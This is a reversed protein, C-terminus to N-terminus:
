CNRLILFGYKQDMKELSIKKGKIAHCNTHKKRQYQVFAKLYGTGFDRTKKELMKNMPMKDIEVSTRYGFSSIGSRGSTFDENLIRM